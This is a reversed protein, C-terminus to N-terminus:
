KQEFRIVLQACGSVATSGAPRYYPAGSRAVAVAAADLSADGSSRTVLPGERLGGSEDACVRVETSGPAAARAGPASPTAAALAPLAAAAAAAPATAAPASANASAHSRGWKWAIEQWSAVATGDGARVAPLYRLRTVCSLAAADLADSGSSTRISPETPVGSPGVVLVVVAASAEQPDTQILDPCRSRSDFGIAVTAGRLAIGQPPPGALLAAPFLGAALLAACTALRSRRLPMQSAEWPGGPHDVTPRTM